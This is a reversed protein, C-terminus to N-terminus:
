KPEFIILEEASKKVDEDKFPFEKYKNQWWLEKIQDSYHNSKPRAVNGGPIATWAKPGDKTMEVVMRYSPGSSYTWTRPTSEDTKSLGPDSNDVVFQDGARPFGIGVPSLVGYVPDFQSPVNLIAIEPPCEAICSIHKLILKHIKGWLWSSPDSTGIANKLGALAERFSKLVIDDRTEEPDTNIDDWFPSSKSEGDGTLQCPEAPNSACNKRFTIHYIAMGYIQDPLAEGTEDDFTNHVFNAYWTHFISTAIANKMTAEDKQIKGDKLQYGSSTDCNWDKLYESYISKESDDLENWKNATLGDKM